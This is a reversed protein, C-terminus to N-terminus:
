RSAHAATEADGARRACDPCLDEKYAPEHPTAKGCGACTGLSPSLPALEVTVWETPDGPQFPDAVPRGGLKTTQWGVECNLKARFVACEAAWKKMAEADRLPERRAVKLQKRFAHEGKPVVRMAVLAGGPLVFWCWEGKLAWARKRLHEGLELLTKTWRHEETAALFDPHDSV